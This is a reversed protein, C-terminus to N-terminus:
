MHFTRSSSDAAKSPVLPGELWQSCIQEAKTKGSVHLCEVNVYLDQSRDTSKKPKGMSTGAAQTTRQIVTAM